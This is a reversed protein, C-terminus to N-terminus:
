TAELEINYIAAILFFRLGFRRRRNRYRDAIIKFRKLMAIVNECAVRESSIARNREKDSTSLLNKKSRKKPMSTKAHRRRLGQYGSDAVAKTDPHLRVKSIKFLRFDHRRGKEHALCLIRRTSKEVVLQTTLTHRKKKGSYYRRQKKKPREIPTETADILVVDFVRERAAVAKRGPLHFAKSKALTNECWKINRYAASESIGYTQGIHFYTRYERWYELMMLLQDEIGLTNPKGGAAKQEWKAAGLLAAMEEFTNRRVSTLRRFAEGKLEKVSDFRM